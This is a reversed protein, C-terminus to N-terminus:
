KKELSNNNQGSKLLFASSFPGIAFTTILASLRDLLGALLAIQPDILLCAAAVVLVSEKVGLNGPTISLIFSLSIASQIFIIENVSPAYSLSLFCLYLRTSSIVFIALTSLLLFLIRGRKLYPWIKRIADNKQIAMIIITASLAAIAVTGTKHELKALLNSGLSILHENGAIAFLGFFIAVLTSVLSTSILAETYKIFAINNNKKLYIGRAFMGLKAPFYNLMTNSASIHFATKIKMKELLPHLSAKLQIGLLVFITISLPISAIWIHVETSKITKITNGSFFDSQIIYTITAIVIALSLLRKINKKMIEAKEKSNCLTKRLNRLASCNSKSM